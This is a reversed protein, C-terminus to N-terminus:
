TKPLVRPLALLMLTIKWGENLDIEVTRHVQEWAWFDEKGNRLYAEALTDSNM